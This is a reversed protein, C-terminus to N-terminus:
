GVIWSSCHHVPSIISRFYAECSLHRSTGFVGLLRGGALWSLSLPLGRDNMALVQHIPPLRKATEIRKKTGEPSGRNNSGDMAVLFTMM